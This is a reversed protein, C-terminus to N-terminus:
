KNNRIVSSKYIKPDLNDHLKIIIPNINLELLKDQLNKTFHTQDYGLVIINPNIEKIILYPDQQKGLVAKNVINLDQIKKLRISENEPTINKIKKVTKDRAIVVTLHNGYSKAKNLFFLHGKHLHDFTGFVLVTKM